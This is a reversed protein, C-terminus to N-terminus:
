FPEDLRTVRLKREVYDKKCEPCTGAKYSRENDHDACAWREPLRLVQTVEATWSNKWLLDVIGASKPPLGEVVLVRAGRRELRHRRDESRWLTEAKDFAAGEYKNGLLKGYAEFFEKAEDDSDWVTMWVLVADGDPGVYVEGRDGDWGEAIDRVARTSGVKQERMLIRIVLEGWANTFTRTYGKGLAASLDPLEVYTPDDRKALYKDPHLIQETSAPPRRYLRRDFTAFDGKCDEFVEMAFLLGDAYPFTLTETLFRPLDGADPSVAGRQAAAMMRVQAKQSEFNDGLTYIWQALSADGETVATLAFVQDDNEEESSPWSRLNFHQDQAAHTLEHVMYMDAIDIGFREEFLKKLEEQQPDPEADADPRILKLEGSQPHYFGAISSAYLKLYAAHLDCDKPILGFAAYATQYAKMEAPTIARNMERLIFEKLETKSYGGVKVERRLKLSRIQELTGSLEVAKQRIEADTQLALALTLAIM